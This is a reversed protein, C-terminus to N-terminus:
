RFRLAVLTLDDDHSEEKLHVNIAHTIKAISQAPDFDANRYAELLDDLGFQNRDEDMAEIAGDTYLLLGDGPSYNFQYVPYTTSEDVGAVLQTDIALPGAAHPQKYIPPAQGASAIKITRSNPNIVMILLTVFQGGFVLPCLQKNLQSLCEGPDRTTPMLNRVILQTTSMLFAAPLGHGSVDGIVVVTHKIEDPNEPPIEFWNYLDGSIHAAPQNEAAIDVAQTQGIPAPLWNLQIRRAKILDRSLMESRLEEIRRRGRQLSLTTSVFVIGVAAVMLAAGSILQWMLPSLHQNIETDQKDRIILLYWRVNNIPIISHVTVLSMGRGSGLDAAETWFSGAKIYAKLEKALDSSTIVQSFSRVNGAAGVCGIILDDSGLYAVVGPSRAQTVAILGAVQEGTMVAIRIKNPNNSPTALLIHTTPTTPLVRLTPQTIRIIDKQDAVLPTLFKIEEESSEIQGTSRDMQAISAVFDKPILDVSGPVDGMTPLSAVLVRMTQEILQASAKASIEQNSRNEDLQQDRLSEYQARASYYAVVIVAILLM